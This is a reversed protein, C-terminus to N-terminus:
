RNCMINLDDSPSNKYVSKQLFLRYNFHIEFIRLFAQKKFVQSNLNSIYRPYKCPDYKARITQHALENATGNM